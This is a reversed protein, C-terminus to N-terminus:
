VVISVKMSFKSVVTLVILQVRVLFHDKRYNYIYHLITTKVIPWQPNNVQLRRYLLQVPFLDM